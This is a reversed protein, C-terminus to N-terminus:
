YRPESEVQQEPDPHRAEGADLLADCPLGVDAAEKGSQDQERQEVRHRGLRLDLGAIVGSRMACRCGTGRPACVASLDGVTGKPRAARAREFWRGAYRLGLAPDYLPISEGAAARMRLYTRRHMGPPKAPFPEAFSFGAGLRM